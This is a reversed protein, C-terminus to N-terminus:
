FLIKHHHREALNKDLFEFHRGTSPNVDRNSIILWRMKVLMGVQLNNACWFHMKILWITLIQTNGLGQCGCQIWNSKGFFRHFNVQKSLFDHLTRNNICEFFHNTMCLCHKRGPNDNSTDLLTKIPPFVQILLLYQHTNKMSRVPATTMSDCNM